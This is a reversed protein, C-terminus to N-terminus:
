FRLYYQGADGRRASLGSEDFTSLINLLTWGGSALRQRVEQTARSRNNCAADSLEIVGYHLRLPNDTKAQYDAYCAAQASTTALLVFLAPILLKARM